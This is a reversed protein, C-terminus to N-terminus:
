EKAEKETKKPESSIIKKVQNNKIIEYLMERDTYYMNMVKGIFNLDRIKNKLLWELINKKNKIDRNIEEQSMGTNRSLEDFFSMSTSHASIEDKEPVWRYLINATLGEKGPIFEAIQYVRRIGKKRDRFMIVNLNVHIGNSM